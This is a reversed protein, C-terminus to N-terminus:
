LGKIKSFIAFDHGKLYQREIGEFQLGLMNLWTIGANFDTHVRAYVRNYPANEIGKKVAKHIHIMAHKINKALLAWMLARDITEEIFGCAGLVNGNRMFAYSKGNNLLANVYESDTFDSQKQHEQLDIAWLHHEKLTVIDIM